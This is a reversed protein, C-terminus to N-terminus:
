YKDCFATHLSSNIINHEEMVYGILMNKLVLHMSSLHSRKCTDRNRKCFRAYNYICTKRMQWTCSTAQFTSWKQPHQLRWSPKCGMIRKEVGGELTLM